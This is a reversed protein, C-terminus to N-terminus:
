IGVEIDAIVDRICYYVPDSTKIRLIRNYFSGLSNFRVRYQYLGLKGVTGWRETSFTRGGDDSFSLMIVPDSGQGSILGTGTEINIILENMTIKKGPYGFIAGDLPASDRQRLIENNNETYVDSTLEYINGNEYDEVLHKNYAYVYGDARNRGGSTGSSWEFWDGGQIYCWTRNATPFSVVVYNINDIDMSWLRVDSVTTYSSFEQVLVQNTVPEVSSGKMRYVKRDNGFFYIYNLNSCVGLIGGLGINIISGEVRDFPPKGVGSNWWQEITTEGFMYVSQDFAYCRILNDAKSEAAAYNLGDITFPDGANSVVFQDFNGDFIAHKNLVAVSDPPDLDSDTIQTLSSGDFVFAKRDAIFIVKNDLADFICKDNGPVSGLLNHTGNNLVSYLNNGVVRYLLGKHFFMGRSKGAVTSFLKQGVFSNLIYKNKTIPDDVVQPIFNITRQASVPLSKHKYSGGTLNITVQM